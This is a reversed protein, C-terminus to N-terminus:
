AQLHTSKLGGGGGAVGGGGESGGEPGGRGGGEGGSGEGGGGEGGGGVGGGGEGGGVGGGGEGGGGTGGGEGGGVAAAARAAARAAVARAAAAWGGGPGGSHLPAVHWAHSSAGAACAAQAERSKEAHTAGAEAGAHTSPGSAVGLVLRARALGVTGYADGGSARALGHGACSPSVYRALTLTPDQGAPQKWCVSLALWSTKLALEAPM